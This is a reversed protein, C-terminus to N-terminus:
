EFRVALRLGGVGPVLTAKYEPTDFIVMGIGAAVAAGGAVTLVVGAPLTNLREYEGNSGVDNLPGDVTLLM